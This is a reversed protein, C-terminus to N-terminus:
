LVIPETPIPRCAALFRASRWTAWFGLRPAAPIPALVPGPPLGAGRFLVELRAAADAGMLAGVLDVDARRFAAGHAPERRDTGLANAALHALEHAVVVVTCGGPALHVSPRGALSRAYSRSSDSRTSRVDPVPLRLAAWFGQACFDALLTAADDFPVVQDYVTGAFAVDELDYVRQRDRDPAATVVTM